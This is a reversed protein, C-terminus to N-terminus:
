TNANKHGQKWILDAAPLCEKTDLAIHTGTQSVDDLLIAMCAMVKAAHPLGSDKDLWEGDQLATLHREAADTYFKHDIPFKRWNFWGYKKAGEMMALALYVKAIPPITHFAVREEEKAIADKPNQM